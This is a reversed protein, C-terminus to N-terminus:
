RDEAFPRVTAPDAAPPTPLARLRVPARSPASKISRASIAAFVAAETLSNSALRNAGHLGSCAARRVGV